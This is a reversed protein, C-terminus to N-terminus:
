HRPQQGGHVVVSGMDVKIRVNRAAALTGSTAQSWADSGHSGNAEQALALPSLLALSLLGVFQPLRKM